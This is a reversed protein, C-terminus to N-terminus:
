YHKFTLLLLYLNLVVKLFVFKLRLKKFMEEQIEPYRKCYHHLCCFLIKRNLVHLFEIENRLLTRKM